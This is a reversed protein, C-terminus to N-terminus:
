KGKLYVKLSAISAKIQANNPDLAQASELDTMAQQLQGIRSFAQARMLYNNINNPDLVILRNYVKVVNPWDSKKFFAAGLVQFAMTNEKDLKVEEIYQEIALDLKGQMEYMRGLQFHANKFTPNKAVLNEYMEKQKDVRGQQRYIDAMNFYAEGLKDDIELVHQYKKMATAFDRKQHYLYAVSLQFLANNPDLSAAYIITEERQKQLAAIKLPDKELTSYLDYVEGMRNVYWPNTPSIILCAKYIAEAKQTYLLRDEPKTAARAQNEYIKGLQVHYYTEWPALKMALEYKQIALPINQQAEANFAERYVYEARFPLFCRYVLFGAFILVVTIKLWDGYSLKNWDIKNNSQQIKVDM